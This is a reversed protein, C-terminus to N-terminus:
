SPDARPPLVQFVEVRPDAVSTFMHRFRGPLGAMAPRLFRDAPRIGITFDDVIVYRAGSTELTAALNESAPTAEYSIARRGAHFYITEVRRGVVVSGPPTERAVWAVAEMYGAWDDGMERGKAWTAAAGGAVLLLLGAAAPAGLSAVHRVMVPLIPFLYRPAYVPHLLCLGVHLVAFLDAAEIRRRISRVFGTLVLLTVAMSAAVKMPDRPAFAEWFPPLLADVVIRGPYVAAQYGIRRLLDAAGAEGRAPDYIDVQLLHGRVYDSAHAATWLHWPFLAAALAVAAAAAPRLGRVLLVYLPVAAVLAVAANRLYFACAAAAVAAALHRPAGDRRYAELALLCLLLLLLAPSETLAETSFLALSPHLALAAAALAALGAAPALAARLYLAGAAAACAGLAAAVARYAAPDDGRLRAVPALLAPLLPPFHAEVRPSPGISVVYGRGDALSRALDVYVGEDGAVPHRDLLPAAALAALCAAALALRVGGRRAAADAPRPRRAVVLIRNGFARRVSPLAALARGLLPVRSLAPVHVEMLRTEVIELGAGRAAAELEDCSPMGGHDADVVDRWSAPPPAAGAPRLGLRAKWREGRVEWEVRTRSPTYLIAPGGPLLCRTAEGLAARKTAGDVHELFDASVAKTFARGRFPLRRVDAAVLRLRRPAGGALAMAARGRRLVGDDRDVGVARAGARAAHFAFTGNGCGLDLIRDEPRPGLAGLVRDIRDRGWGDSPDLYLDRVHEPSGVESPM